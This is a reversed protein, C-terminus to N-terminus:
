NDHQLAVHPYDSAKLLHRRKSSLREDNSDSEVPHFSRDFVKHKGIDNM